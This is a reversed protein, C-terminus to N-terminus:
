DLQRVVAALITELAAQSLSSPRRGGLSAIVVLNIVANIDAKSLPAPQFRTTESALWNALLDNEIREAALESTKIRSRLEDTATSPAPAPGSKLTTRLRRLPQVVGERWARCADDMDNIDSPTLAIGKKTAAFTAVLLLMVDVNADSQLKLCAESVGPEAYLQLAFSWSQDGIHQQETMM